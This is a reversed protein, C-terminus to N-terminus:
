KNRNVSCFYLIVATSELNPIFRKKPNGFSHSRDPWLGARGSQHVAVTIIARSSPEGRQVSGRSGQCVSWPGAWRWPWPRKRWPESSIPPPNSSSVQDDWRRLLQIWGEESKYRLVTTDSNQLCNRQSSARSPGRVHVKLRPVNHLHHTCKWIIDILWLLRSTEAPVTAGTVQCQIFHYFISPLISLYISPHISLSWKLEPLKELFDDTDSHFCVADSSLDSSGPQCQLYKVVHKNKLTHKKICSPLFRFSFFKAFYDNIFLYSFFLYFFFYHTM